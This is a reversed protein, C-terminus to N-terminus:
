IYRNIQYSHGVKDLAKSYSINEQSSPPRCRSRSRSGSRGQEVERRWDERAKEEEELDTRALQLFDDERLGQRRTRELREQIVEMEGKTVVRFVCTM